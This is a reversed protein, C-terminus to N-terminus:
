GGPSHAKAAAEEMREYMAAVQEATAHEDLYELYIEEEKAFHLRVLAHLGYLVQRLDQAAREALPTDGLTSQLHGLRATMAVVETHDRSMTRTAGPAGMVQEVFPYLEADEAVAHPILHSSLFAHARDVAQRVEVPSMTGVSHAVEALHDIEPLLGQHENRIPETPRM